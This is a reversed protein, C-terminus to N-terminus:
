EKTKKPAQTEEVIMPAKGERQGRDSSVPGSGTSFKLGGTNVLGGTSVEEFGISIDEFDKGKFEKRRLPDDDIDKFIRGKDEPEEDESTTLVVNRRKLITGIEQGPHDFHPVYSYTKGSAFIKDEQNDDHGAIMNALLPRNVGAFGGLNAMGEFIEANPLETVGNEDALRLKNRIHTGKLFDVIQEFGASGEPKKLFGVHNHKPVFDM